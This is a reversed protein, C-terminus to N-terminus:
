STALPTSSGAKVKDTSQHKCNDFHYRRMNSAHISQMGCHVCTVIPRTKWQNKLRMKHEDTFVFDAKALSQKQKTESTHKRGHFPNDVGYRHVGFMGNNKGKRSTYNNPNVNDPNSSSWRYTMIQSIAKKATEYNTSTGNVRLQNGSKCVHMMWYALHIGSSKPYIKTLLHHCIFHEKATLLVLNDDDSGNLCKPLVHHWEYYQEKSKKRNLNKAKTTISNYIKIYNM